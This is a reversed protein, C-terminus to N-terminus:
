KKLDFKQKELWPADIPCIEADVDLPVIIWPMAKPLEVTTIEYLRKAVYELEDPHVDLILSDHIQGIIRTDLKDTEYIMKDAQVLSWLLCHFAAGQVPYNICDNKSMVGQCVFGTKLTIYGYKKYAEWHTEKWWTYQTYRKNWFDDEIAKVHEVFADYSKIGKEILHDSLYYPKFEKGIKDLEIGQGYKWKSQPLKCWGVAMNEACNKYYDGYFQPFVFGNKAAQRLTKYGEKDKHFTDIKFIEKAMDLHMDGHLIDYILKEDKNYCASIRVELQGFDIELLQHGERPFLARRSIKMMDKDRKPINQFNPSDSSSRYTRVLHLNFFPHIQGNVQEREFGKLVDISKKIKTKERYYNLEPIDLKLLTEQDTAGKGSPTTKTPKIGKVNYLFEGLQSMSNINLEKGRRSKEWEKYFKTGLFENQLVNIKKNLSKLKKEIYEVDVRFGQQEARALALIGKHFLDYAEYKAPYVKIM